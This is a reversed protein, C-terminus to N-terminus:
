GTVTWGKLLAISRKTTGFTATISATSSCPIDLTFNVNTTINTIKPIIVLTGSGDTTLTKPSGGLTDSVQFNDTTKNVIYYPTNIVIGTTSAIVAFSVQQGDTFGHGARTVLDGTDVFTVARTTSINTGYVEMGIALDSTNTQTVVASNITTGCTTKSILDFAGTCGTIAVTKGSLGKPLDSFLLELATKNLNSYNVLVHPSIGGFLSSQNLLRVGTLSHNFNTRSTADTTLKSVLSNTSFVGMDVKMAYFFLASFNCQVTTSGLFQLNEIKKLGLCGNLCGSTDNLATGFNAPFTISQLSSCNYFLYAISTISGWSSPLTISRLSYCNYFMNSIINVNNWSIPLTITYLSYCGYFMQITTTISNGWTSPLNITQLSFCNYFMYTVNNIVNGWTNPLELDYLSFCGNFMYSLNQALGWSTPLVLKEISYCNYFMNQLQTVSGWSSPLTINNIANCGYFLNSVATISGWTTPLDITTLTNCNNFLLNVTLISGWSEPIILNNLVFCGNFLSEVTTIAGWTSPLTINVLSNCGQFMSSVNNVLSWSIPLVIDNLSKCNYFFNTTTACLKWNTPLTISTLSPCGYFMYSPNTVLAWDSPLTVTVLRSCNYFLSSANTVSGWSSPIIQQDLSSCGSFMQNVTTISGWTAPLTVNELMYCNIFLSSVNTVSGWTSPLDVKELAVANSFVSSINTSAGWSPISVHKLNYCITTQSAAYYFMAGSLNLNQTGFYAELIPCYNTTTGVYGVAFRLINGTAGYIKVKFTTYGLSCPIGTGVAYTHSYTTGSVRATEIATGDGWDISYAGASTTVSFALFTEDTTLLNIENNGVASIDIWDAPRTWTTFSADEVPKVYQKSFDLSNTSAQNIPLRFSGIAM